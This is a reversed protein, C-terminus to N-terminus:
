AAVVNSAINGSFTIPSLLDNSSLMRQLTKEMDVDNSDVPAGLNNPPPVLITVSSVDSMDSQGVSQPPAGNSVGKKQDKIGSIPEVRKSLKNVRM